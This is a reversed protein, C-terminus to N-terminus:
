ALGVLNACDHEGHGIAREAAMQREVVGGSFDGFAGDTATRLCARAGVGPLPNAHLLAKGPAAVLGNRVCTTPTREPAPVSRPLVEAGVSFWAGFTLKASRALGPAPMKRVM